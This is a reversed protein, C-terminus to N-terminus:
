RDLAVLRNEADWTLVWHGDNTTNGDVDYAFREPNLPAFIKGANTTVIDKNTGNPLVGVTTIDNFVPYVSSGVGAEGRFYDGHRYTPTQNVTVTSSANATGIVDAKGPVTRHTYQNLNNVTYTQYRLGTGWENGGEGSYKRNGIDDFSYEFQQGPVPIGDSFYKKGSTV